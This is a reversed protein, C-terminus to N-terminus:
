HSRFITITKPAWAAAAASELAAAKRREVALTEKRKDEVIGEQRVKERADDIMKLNNSLEKSVAIESERIGSAGTTKIVKIELKEGGGQPSCPMQQIVPVDTPKKGPCKYVEACVPLSLATMLAAVILKKM